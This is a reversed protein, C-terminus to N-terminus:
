ARDLQQYTLRRGAAGHQPTQAAARGAGASRTAAQVGRRAASTRETVGIPRVAEAVAQGQAGPVDVRRLEAATEGPAQAKEQGDVAGTRTRRDCWRRVAEPLGPRDLSLAAAGPGSASSIRQGPSGPPHITDWQERCRPHPSSRPLPSAIAAMVPLCRAKVTSVALHGIAVASASRILPPLPLSWILPPPPSSSIRPPLPLSLSLPSAAVVPKEAVVAAVREITAGVEVDEVAAPAVVDEDAGLAPPVPGEPAM